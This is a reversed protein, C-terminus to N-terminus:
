SSDQGKKRERESILDNLVKNVKQIEPHNTLTWELRDKPMKIKQAANSVEKALRDRYSTLEQISEILEDLSAESM